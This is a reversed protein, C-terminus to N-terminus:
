LPIVFRIDLLRGNFSNSAAFPFNYEVRASLGGFEYGLLPGAGYSQAKCGGNMPCGALVAGEGSDPTLQNESYGGVGVRWKGFTKLATYDVAIVEGSQYDYVGGAIHYSPDNLNIAYHMSLSLNWGDHLWSVAFDPQITWFGNGTGLGGGNPPHAFSSSPEDIDVTLGAKISFHDPLKWSLQIPVIQPNFLGHDNNAPALGPGYINTYDFPLSVAASYTGNLVKFDTQWLLIPIEFLADTGYGASQGSGEYKNLTSYYQNVTAYVGTPSAAGAALGEDLGPLHPYWLEEADVSATILTVSLAVATVGLPRVVAAEM